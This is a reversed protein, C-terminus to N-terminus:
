NRGARRAADTRIGTVAGALPHRTTIAGKLRCLSDAIDFTFAVCDPNAGCIRQCAEITSTQSASSVASRLDGAIMTQGHLLEFAPTAPPAKPTDRPAERRPAPVAVTSTPAPGTRAYGTVVLSGALILALSTLVVAPGDRDRGAYVRALQLLGPVCLWAVLVLPEAGLGPGSKGLFVVKVFELFAELSM